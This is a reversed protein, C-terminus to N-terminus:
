RTGEDIFVWHLRRGVAHDTFSISRGGQGGGWVGGSGSGHGVIGEGRRRGDGGGGGSGGRGGVLPLAGVASEHVFVSVEGAGEAELLADVGGAEDFLEVRLLLFLLRAENEGVARAVNAPLVVNGRVVEPVTRLRARATLIAQLFVYLQLDLLLGADGNAAGEVDGVGVAAGVDVYVLGVDHEEGGCGGVVTVYVLLGLVRARTLLGQVHTGSGVAVELDFPHRM